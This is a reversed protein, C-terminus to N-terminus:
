TWHREDVMKLHGEAFSGRDVFKVENLKLRCGSTFSAKFRDALQDGDAEGEALELRALIEDRHDVRRVSIEFDSIQPFQ